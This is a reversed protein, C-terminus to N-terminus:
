RITSSSPIASIWPCSSMTSRDWASWCSTPRNWGSSRVGRMNTALNNGVLEKAPVHIPDSLIALQYTRRLPPKVSLLLFGRLKGSVTEVNLTTAGPDRGGIFFRIASDRKVFYGSGQIAAHGQLTYLAFLHAKNPDACYVIVDETESAQVWLAMRRVGGAPVMQYQSAVDFGDHITPAPDLFVVAM